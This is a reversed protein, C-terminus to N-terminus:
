WPTAAARAPSGIVESIKFMCSEYKPLFIFAVTNLSIKLAPYRM